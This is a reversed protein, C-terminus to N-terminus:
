SLFPAEKGGTGPMTSSLGVSRWHIGLVFDTLGDSHCGLRSCGHPGVPMGIGVDHLGLLRLPLSGGVLIVVFCSASLGKPCRTAFCCAGPRVQM